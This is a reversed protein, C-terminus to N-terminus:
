SSLGAVGELKKALRGSKKLKKVKLVQVLNKCAREADGEGGSLKAYKEGGPRIASEWYV